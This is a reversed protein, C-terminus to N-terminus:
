VAEVRCLPQGYEVPTGDEVLVEVIRGSVRSVVDNLLKMSEIAGVVDGEEIAAGVRLIGDSSHFIGVMPALIARGDAADERVAQRASPHGAQQRAQPAAQQPKHGKRVVVSMDGKRVSLEENRSHELVGILEEIKSIDM